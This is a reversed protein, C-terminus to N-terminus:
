SAGNRSIRRFRRNPKNGRNPNDRPPHILQQVPLEPDPKQKKIFPTKAPPKKRFEPSSGCTDPAKGLWTATIGLNAIIRKADATNKAGLFTTAIGRRGMRGARGTRHTYAEQTKPYDANIVHTVQSFDLGRGAVDTAVLIKLKGAKFRNYLSSRINQDLGGHIYEVEQLSKKLHQYTDEVSSRSNCFVIVQNYPEQKLYDTLSQLRNKASTWHFVHELSTPIADEKKLEIRHPNNLMGNALGSIEKPMTASFFLTQREGVICSAIFRIDDIFGMDLMEDAEDLVLAKLNVMSIEGSYILDIMRGPTAVLFQVGHRLKAKQISMEFGGFIAFCSIDAYKCVRHIEDVYQQALERTPVLILAQIDPNNRDVCQSLPIVCAATKGSGTQALGLVDRGAMVADWTQEQIPTMEEYGAETLAKFVGIDLGLDEFRKAM